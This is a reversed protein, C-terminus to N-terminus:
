DGAWDQDGWYARFVSEGKVEIEGPADRKEDNIIEGSEPDRLRVTVGPLPLGVHGDLRGSIPKLPCSLIMGTETM